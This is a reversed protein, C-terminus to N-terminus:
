QPKAGSSSRTGDLTAAPPPISAKMLACAQAEEKYEKPDHKEAVDCIHDYGKWIEPCETVGTSEIEDTCHDRLIEAIRKTAQAATIKSRFGGLDPLRILTDRIPKRVLRFDKLNPCIEAARGILRRVYIGYVDGLELLDDTKTRHRALKDVSRSARELSKCESTHSLASLIAVVATRHAEDLGRESTDDRLEQALSEELMLTAKSNYDKDDVFEKLLAYGVLRKDPNKGDTVLASTEFFARYKDADQARKFEREWRLNDLKSQEEQQKKNTWNQYANAFFGALAVYGVLAQSAVAIRSSRRKRQYLKEFLQEADVLRKLEDSSAVQAVKLLDESELASKLSSQTTQDENAM